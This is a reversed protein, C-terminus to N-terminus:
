KSESADILETVECSLTARDELLALRKSGISILAGGGNLVREVESLIKASVAADTSVADFTGKDIVADFHGDAFALQRGDMTEWAAGQMESAHRSRMQEIVAASVDINHQQHYGDRYM